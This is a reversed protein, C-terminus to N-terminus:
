IYPRTLQPYHHVSGSDAQRAWYIRSNTLNIARIKFFNLNCVASERQHPAKIGKYIYLLNKFISHEIVPPPPSRPNEM